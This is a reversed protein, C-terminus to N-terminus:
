CEVDLYKSWFYVIKLSASFGAHFFIWGLLKRFRARFGTVGLAVCCYVM